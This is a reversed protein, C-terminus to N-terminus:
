GSPEASLEPEARVDLDGVVGDARRLRRDFGIIGAEGGRETFPVANFM